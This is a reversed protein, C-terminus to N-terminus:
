SKRNKSVIVSKKEAELMCEILKEAVYEVNPEKLV